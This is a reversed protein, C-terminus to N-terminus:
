ESQALLEEIKIPKIKTNQKVAIFLGTFDNNVADNVANNNAEIQEIESLEESTRLYRCLYNNTNHNYDMDYRLWQEHETAPNYPNDLTTLFLMEDPYKNNSDAM